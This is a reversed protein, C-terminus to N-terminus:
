EAGPLWGIAVFDVIEIFQQRENPQRKVLKLSFAVGSESLLKDVLEKDFQGSGEFIGRMKALAVSDKRIWALQERGPMPVSLKFRSFNSEAEGAAPPDPKVFVHFIGPTDIPGAAFKRFLDDHFNVFSEWNVKAGDSTEMVSVPFGEPIAATCVKYIHSSGATELLTISTVPFPGDGLETARKEISSRM